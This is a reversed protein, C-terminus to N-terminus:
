RFRTISVRALRRRLIRTLDATEWPPGLFGRFPMDIFGTTGAQFAWNQTPAPPFGTTERAQLSLAIDLPMTLGVRNRHLGTRTRPRVGTQPIESGRVFCITFRCHPADALPRSATHLHLRGQTPSASLPIVRLVSQGSCRHSRGKFGPRCFLSFFHISQPPFCRPQRLLSYSLFLIATRVLHCDPLASPM